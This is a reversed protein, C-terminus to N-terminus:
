VEMNKKDGVLGHTLSKNGRRLDVSKYTEIVNKSVKYAKM